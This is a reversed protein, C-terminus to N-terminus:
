SWNEVNVESFSSPNKPDSGRRNKPDSGRRNQVNSSRRSHSVNQPDDSNSARRTQNNNGNKAKKIILNNVKRTQASATSKGIHSRLRMEREENNRIRNRMQREFNNNSLPTYPARVTKNNQIGKKAKEKAKEKAENKAAQKLESQVRYQAIGKKNYPQKGEPDPKFRYTLEVLPNSGHTPNLFTWAGGLQQM